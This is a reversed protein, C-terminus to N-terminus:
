VEDKRTMEKLSIEGRLNQSPKTDDQSPSSLNQGIDVSDRQEWFFPEAATELHEKEEIPVQNLDTKPQKSIKLDASSFPNNIQQPADVSQLPPFNGKQKRALSIFAIFFSVVLILIGLTFFIM